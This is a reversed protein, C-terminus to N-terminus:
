IVDAIPSGNDITSVPRGSGDTYQLDRPIGLVHFLTAMLDQPSIPQSKPVDGRAASEGVLKGVKLGGGALVLPCVRPWHDRGGSKPDLWPTRGFEGTIVLLVEKNLGRSTFDEVFATLLSSNGEAPTLSFGMM